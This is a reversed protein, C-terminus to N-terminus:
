NYDLSHKSIYNSPLQFITPSTVTSILIYFGLEISIQSYNSHILPTQINLCIHKHYIALTKTICKPHPLESLHKSIYNPIQSYLRLHLNFNLLITPTQSIPTQPINTFFHNPNFTYSSIDNFSLIKSTYVPIHIKLHLQINSLKSHFESFMSAFKPIMTSSTTQSTYNLSHFKTSTTSCTTPTSFPNLSTRPPHHL